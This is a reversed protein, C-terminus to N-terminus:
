NKTSIKYFYGAFYIGCIFFIIGFMFSFPFYYITLEYKGKELLVGLLGNSDILKGKSAHWGSFYNQNIVLTDNKVLAIELILRNPSLFVARAKGFGNKLFYEGRYGNNEKPVVKTHILDGINDWAYVVGQNNYVNEFMNNLSGERQFFPQGSNGFAYNITNKSRFIKDSNKFVDLCLFIVIIIMFIFRIPKSSIHESLKHITLGVSLSFTVSFVLIFKHAEKLFPLFFHLVQWLNVPSNEGSALLFFIVNMIVLVKYERWLLIISLFFLVIIFISFNWEIPGAKLYDSFFLINNRLSIIPHNFVNSSFFNFNIFKSNAALQTFRPCKNFLELGTFIKPATLLFVLIILCLLSLVLDHRKKFLISYSLDLLVVIGSMLFVYVSGFYILASLLIAAFFLYRKDDKGKNLFLYVWPIFSVNLSYSSGVYTVINYIHLFFISNLLSFLFGLNYHRSLLYMGALGIFVQLFYILITGGVTGFILILIFLPSLFDSNPHGFWPEGGCIYQNWLPLQHNEILIKRQLEHYTFCKDWDCRDLFQFGSFAIVWWSLSIIIIAAIALTKPPIKILM